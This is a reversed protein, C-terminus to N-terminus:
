PKGLAYAGCDTQTQRLLELLMGAGGYKQTWVGNYYVMYYYDGGPNFAVLMKNPAFNHMRSMLDCKSLPGLLNAARASKQM